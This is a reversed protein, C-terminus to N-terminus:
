FENSILGSQFQVWKGSGEFFTIEYIFNEIFNLNILFAVECFEFPQKEFNLNM